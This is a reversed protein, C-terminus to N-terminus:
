AREQIVTERYVNNSDAELDVQYGPWKEDFAVRGARVFRVGDLRQVSLLLNDLAEDLLDETNATYQGGIALEVRIRHTLVNASPATLEERSVSVCVKGAGLNEPISRPHPTVWYAPNDEIIRDAIQERVTAM